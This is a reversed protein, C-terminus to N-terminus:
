GACEGWSSLMVSLDSADTDGDGDVDGAAEGWNSLLTSLDSADVTGSGDLDAACSRVSVTREFSTARAVDGGPGFTLECRVRFTRDAMGKPFEIGSLDLAKDGRYLFNAGEIWMSIGSETVHPGDDVPVDDVFWQGLPYLVAPDGGVSFALHASTAGEPLTVSSPEVTFRPWRGASETNNYLLYVSGVAFEDKATGGPPTAWMTYLGPDQPTTGSIELRTTTAGAITSGSPQVGNSLPVSPSGTSRIMTWRVSWDPGPTALEVVAGGGYAPGFVSVAPAQTEFGAHFARCGAHRVLPVTMPLHWASQQQGNPGFEVISYWLTCSKTCPDGGGLPLPIEHTGGAPVDVSFAQKTVGGDLSVFGTARTLVTTEGKSRVVFRAASEGEAAPVVGAIFDFPRTTGWSYGLNASNTPNPLCAVGTMGAPCYTCNGPAVSADFCSPDATVTVPYVQNGTNWWPLSAPRAVWREFPVQASTSGCGCCLGWRVTMYGAFLARNTMPFYGRLYWASMGYDNWWQAQGCSQAEAAGATLM